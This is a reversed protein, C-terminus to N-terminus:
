LIYNALSISYGTSSSVCNYQGYDHLIKTKSSSITKENVESQKQYCLDFQYFDVMYKKKGFVEGMTVQSPNIAM